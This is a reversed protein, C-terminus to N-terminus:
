HPHYATWRPLLFLTLHILSHLVVTPGIIGTWTHNVLVTKYVLSWTSLAIRGRGQFHGPANLHSYAQKQKETGRDIINCARLRPLPYGYGLQTARSYAPTQSSRSQQQRPSLPRHCPTRQQLTPHFSAGSSSCCCLSHRSDGARRSSSHPCSEVDPSPSSVSLIRSGGTQQHRDDHIDSHLIENEYIDRIANLVRDPDLRTCTGAASRLEALIENRGHTLE